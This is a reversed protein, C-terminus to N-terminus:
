LITAFLAVIPKEGYSNQLRCQKGHVAYSPEVKTQRSEAEKHRAHSVNKAGYRCISAYGGARLTRRCGGAPLNRYIFGIFRFSNM